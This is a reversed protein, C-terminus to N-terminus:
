PVLVVKGTSSRNELARHAEAVQELPYRGAILVKLTGAQALDFLRHLEAHLTVTNLLPLLAFGRISQNQNFMVELDRASLQCRNLAAFVLEGLPALANLCLGTILDGVTDYIVDIGRGDTAEKVRDIWGKNQYDFVFDAGLSAAIELKSPTSASSASPARANQSNSWSHGLM